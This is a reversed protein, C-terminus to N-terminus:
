GWVGTAWGDFGNATVYAYDAQNGRQGYDAFIPMRFSFQESIGGPQAARWGSNKATGFGSGSQMWKLGHLLITHEEEQGGAQVKVYVNDGDYARMMPTFPDGGALASLQNIPPLFPSTGGGAYGAPAKGLKDNLEPIARQVNSVMAFALDGQKFTGNAQCGKQGGPCDTRNPDFVRAILSENRYNVVYMGPDDASILEPCPRTVGGPCVPPFIWIDKPFGGVLPAQQRVSPQIADRFSDANGTLVTANMWLGPSLPQGKSVAYEALRRGEKNAGIYVGPQYAHQFDSYELYFERYAEVSQWGVNGTGSYYGGIGNSGTLIAAQWSTPGGDASPGNGTRTYLPTGTENHVWKSGAPEILVTAYLGIQQHTSPGYHDHTFIIGLGRDVGQINVVPDAFWRQITSRAGKWQAAFQTAGFFPHDAPHLHTNTESLAPNATADLFYASTKVAPDTGEAPDSYTTVPAGGEDQWRNIAEIVEVVAEPSLTGDEYNWGNASGDASVLDWKPLHIHQGIIDTPTRVQYDDLEYAKPVVNSHVYTTCDFTNMRIVFPEPPRQHLITPVVDQWLTIIREQPFHYGLKNFVADFQVNAAKYVRPTTATFPSNGQRDMANYDDMAALTGGFFKGVVDKAMTKGRDDVCPEFYAAGAVPLAGNTVFGKRTNLSKDTTNRQDDQDVCPAPTGDPLSTDHCRQSHYHMVAQELDTGEEPFFFPKARHVEKSFDLRNIAVISEGGAAYGDLTFRPLGGDWGQISAPDAFGPHQWLPKNSAKLAAAQASNLMDLPPTPPRQGVTHEIGAIWFPYGPNDLVGDNNADERPVDALSGTSREVTGSPCGGAEKATLGFTPSDGVCIKNPNDKVTVGEVPMPAMPKGPLPVVAPIPVGALIEGDPLARAGDAPLGKGLGIGDTVFSIHASGGDLTTQLQTGQEFTDHVRWMEWMGQAFHPYFHCHFIVDGASKNRNGAGGFNIWYAYGSGPGLGQADLYNSNDDDANFLWQHNHLHFVHQEGGGAHLNRFAVADGQYSHHVNSPDDPYLAYNAKPGTAGCGTLDPACNELGFNAPIDVLQGVEGVASFALFFEEYACGICDHMPGVRLRSSIIESGIGGSGYNIMFSDRVGHLTHELVPDNFWKPFANQTAVEDHFAVTLERFPELRNPVSPNRKGSSELTYTTEPFHGMKGVHPGSPAAAMQFTPGYAVVANLETHVIANSDVMNVVPLGARGESVWPSTSGDCNQTPYRVEYNMVPHGDLSRKTQGCNTPDNPDLSIATALDMEERTLQSRYFSSHKGNVTLVAWLGSGTHGGQGEGGTTAGMSEGIFAGDHPASITYTASGGPAVLSTQNRGVNSSDASINEVVETGQFRLGIRREAVADDDLLRFPIKSRQLIPNFPNATPTLLNTLTITLCDGKGMHLILPRPRKDPRLAVRGPTPSGGATLPRNDDLNIVDNRLAYMMGNINQAGLRNWMLPMDIAVIDATLTRVCQGTPNARFEAKAADPLVLSILSLSAAFGLVGLSKRFDYAMRM